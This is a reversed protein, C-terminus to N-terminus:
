TLLFAFLNFYIFANKYIAICNCKLLTRDTFVRNEQFHKSSFSFSYYFYMKLRYSIILYFIRYM